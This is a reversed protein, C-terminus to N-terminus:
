HSCCRSFTLWARVQGAALLLLKGRKRAILPGPKNEGLLYGWNTGAARKTAHDTESQHVGDPATPITYNTTDASLTQYAKKATGISFVQPHIRLSDPALDILSRPVQPKKCSNSKKQRENEQLMKQVTEYFGNIEPAEPM